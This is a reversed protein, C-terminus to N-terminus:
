QTTLWLFALIGIVLAWNQSDSANQVAGKLNQQIDTSVQNDNNNTIFNDLQAPLGIDALNTMQTIGKGQVNPTNDRGKSKGKASGSVDKTKNKHHDTVNDPFGPNIGLQNMVDKGLKLLAPDITTM